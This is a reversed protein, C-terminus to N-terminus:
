EVDFKDLTSTLQLSRNLAFGSQAWSSLSFNIIILVVGDIFQELHFFWFNSDMDIFNGLLFVVFVNLKLDCIENSEVVLGSGHNLHNVNSAVNKM